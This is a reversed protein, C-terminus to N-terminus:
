KIAECYYRLSQQWIEFVSAAGLTNLAILVNCTKCNWHFCLGQLKVGEWSGRFVWCSFVSCCMCSCPLLYAPIVPAATVSLSPCLLAVARSGILSSLCKSLWLGARAWVKIGKRSAGSPPFLRDRPCGLGVPWQPKPWTITFAMTDGRLLGNQERLPIGWVPALLPDKLM